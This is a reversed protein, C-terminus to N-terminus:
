SQTHSLVLEVLNTIFREKEMPMVLKGYLIEQSVLFSVLSGWFIRAIAEPDEIGLELHSKFYVSLSHQARQIVTRTYLQALEPFRVSEAIVVRLLALYEEDTMKQLFTNALRRLLVAPEGHMAEACFDFQMRNITVREILATFLGEKDQFHSYITQKSVGAAAAARDMSTGAYGQSLFVQMAGRLIQERKERTSSSEEIQPNSPSLSEM